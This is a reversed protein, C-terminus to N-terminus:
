QDPARCTEVSNTILQNGKFNWVCDVHILKLPPNASIQSIETLNTAYQTTRGTGDKDLVIVQQPFNSAMLQDVPPWSSTDWKASRTEEVREVARAGAALSLASKQASGISFLYSTVIGAVAVASIALAVVVEVLTLGATDGLSNQLGSSKSHAKYHAM